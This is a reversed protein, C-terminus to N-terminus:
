FSVDVDGKLRRPETMLLLQPGSTWDREWSRFLLADTGGGWPNLDVVLVQRGTTIYVDITLNKEPLKWAVAEVFKGAVEWYTKALRDLRYFHRILNYQSMGVLKGDKIFLRFERPLNMTRFPRVCLYNVLGAKAAEHVKKSACLYRWASAASHVAGRRAKFRVTDTPSCSDVSVFFWGSGMMRRLEAVVARGPSDGLEKRADADSALYEVAEKRLRMFRTPLAYEALVPYWVPMLCFNNESM